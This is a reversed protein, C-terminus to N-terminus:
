VSREKSLGVEKLCYNTALKNKESKNSEELKEKLREIQELKRERRLKDLEELQNSDLGDSKLKHKSLLYGIRAARKTRGWASKIHSKFASSRMIIEEAKKLQKKMNEKKMKELIKSMGYLTKYKGLVFKEAEPFVEFDLGNCLGQMESLVDEEIHELRIRRMISLHEPTLNPKPM